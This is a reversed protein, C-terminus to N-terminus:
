DWWSFGGQQKWKIKLEQCLSTGSSSLDSPNDKFIFIEESCDLCCM